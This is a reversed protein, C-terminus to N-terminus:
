HPQEDAGCWPCTKPSGSLRSGCRRCCDRGGSSRPREEVSGTAVGVLAGIVGAVLGAPVGLVLALPAFADDDAGAFPGYVVMITLGGGVLFGIGASTLDKRM